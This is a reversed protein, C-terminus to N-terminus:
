AGVLHLTGLLNEMQPMLDLGVMFGLGGSTCARESFAKVNDVRVGQGHFLVPVPDASHAKMECPTTHDATWILLTDAPLNFLHPVAQDIREIFDRKGNFNGDEGLSDAAKVHVFIFNYKDLSKVARKFKAEIDTDPLATAGPVDLIDM